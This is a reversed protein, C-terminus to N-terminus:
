SLQSELLRIEDSVDVKLKLEYLRKLTEKLFNQHAHSTPQFPKHVLAKSINEWTELFARTEQDFYVASFKKWIYDIADTSPHIMDSAYFRYDRLDDLLIEYAPFYDVDKHRETIAHCALRLISKSVSNLELTDKLHRVPSVTLIIRIEPNFVKISRYTEDFSEMIREATLLTKKFQNSPMKHCNAVVDRTDFREYVWSTGYTIFLYRSNKLFLHVGEITDKLRTELLNKSTEAFASHFDYNLALENNTLYTSEHPQQNHVTQLLLKHISLPNYVTGFPNQSVPFKSASLRQGVTDAFCSGLTLTPHQLGIKHEAPILNIVTRFEDM